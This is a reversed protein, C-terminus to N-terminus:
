DRVILDVRFGFPLESGAVITLPRELREPQVGWTAALAAAVKAVENLEEVVKTGSPALMDGFAIAEM